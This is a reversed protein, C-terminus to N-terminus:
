AESKRWEPLVEEALMRVLAQADQPKLEFIDVISDDIVFVKGPLQEQIRKQLKDLDSARHMGAARVIYILEEGVDSTKM